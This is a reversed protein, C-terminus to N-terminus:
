KTHSQYANIAKELCHRAWDSTTHIETTQGCIGFGTIKSDIDRYIFIPTHTHRLQARNFSQKPKGSIQAFKNLITPMYRFVPSVNCHGSNKVSKNYHNTKTASTYGHKEYFKDSSGMAILDTTHTDVSIASEAANLLRKGIRQGQYTPLIYLHEIKAVKSDYTGSIFGIMEYNDYAAFAFNQSKQWNEKFETMTDNFDKQSTDINYTQKRTITRIRLFDDWIMPASQDFIPFIKIQKM